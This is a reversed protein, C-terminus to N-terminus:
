HVDYGPCSIKECAGSRQKRHIGTTSKGIGNRSYPTLEILEALEDGNDRMQQFVNVINEDLDNVIEIMAPEKAMTVALAGGFLEVWCHHPPMYKLIDNALRQKSGYYGFAGRPLKISENTDASQGLSNGDGHTTGHQERDM